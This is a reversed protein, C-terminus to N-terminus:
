LTVFKRRRFAVVRTMAARALSCGRCGGGSRARVLQLVARGRGCWHHRATPYRSSRCGRNSGPPLRRHFKQRGEPVPRRGSPTTMGARETRGSAARFEGPGGYLGTRVPWCQWLRLSSQVHCQEQRSPMPVRKSGDTGRARDATSTYSRASSTSPPGSRSDRPYGQNDSCPDLVFSSLGGCPTNTDIAGRCPRGV